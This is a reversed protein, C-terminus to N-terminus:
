EYVIFVNFQESIAELLIFRERGGSVLTRHQTCSREPVLPRNSYTPLLATLRRTVQIYKNKSSVSTQSGANFRANQQELLLLLLVKNVFHCFANQCVIFM